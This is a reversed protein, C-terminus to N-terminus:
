RQILLSLRTRPWQIASIGSPVGRHSRRGRGRRPARARDSQSGGGCPLRCLHPRQPRRRHDGCDALHPPELVGARPLRAGSTGRRAGERRAGERAPHASASRETASACQGLGRLARDGRAAQLEGPEPKLEVWLGDLLAPCRSPLRASAQFPSAAASDALQGAHIRPDVPVQRLDQRTIARIEPSHAVMSWFVLWVNFLASRPLEPAFSARFFVREFSRAPSVARTTPKHV